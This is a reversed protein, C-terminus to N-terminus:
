EAVFANEYQAHRSHVVAYMVHEFGVTSALELLAQRWSDADKSELLQVLQATEIM